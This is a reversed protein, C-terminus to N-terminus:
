PGRGKLRGLLRWLRGGRSSLLSSYLGLTAEGDEKMTRVAPISERLRRLESDGDLLGTLKRRLDTVSGMEFTEGGGREVLEAMGGFRSVLVPVGTKFAQLITLPSNEYWISPVLVCDASELVERIRDPPFEGRWRIRPDAFRQRLDEVYAPDKTPDGHVDLVFSMEAPLGAFAELLIHVGKHPVLTGLYAFVRPGAGKEGGGALSAEEPWPVGLPWHDVRDEPFGLEVFKGRLFRSPALFRHVARALGDVVRRREVVSGGGGRALLEGFYPASSLCQACEEAPPATCITGDEKRMRGWLPCLLGYDHLTYVVPSRRAALAPLGLSFSQLQQIHVVDPRIESAVTRFVAEAEPRLYTQRFDAPRYNYIMRFVPLGDVEDREVEFEKKGAEIEGHLVWVDHGQKQLERSLSYTYIESGALHRPLFQHVVQLVRM